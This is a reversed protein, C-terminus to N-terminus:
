EVVSNQQPTYVCSFQHITGVSDFFEKFRLEPANDSRFAKINRSFQTEVLKFIKPIIHLVDSKHKLLYVWTYRSRDDVLTLFYSYGAHTKAHFPGWIDCHILDFIHESVNNLAPFSLRRQKALPCIRCHEHSKNSESFPVVDKLLSLRADSLHGLRQHWTEYSIKCALISPSLVKPVRLMYLSGNLEVKGITRLHLKDQIVCTTGFFNVSYHTNSLLASVSLLNYAFNPVYLVDMLIVDESLRVTGIYEVTFQEKTPLIVTTNTAPHMSVFLSLNYCVHSAAGSDIVWPEDYMTSATALIHTCTGAIHNTSSTGAAEMKPFTMHTQLMSMLHSYQDTNLSAFFASQDTKSGQDAKPGQDVHKGKSSNPLSNRYGPPFGHLLYCRDIVHGKVGCHTCLPRQGDKRKYRDVSPRRTSNTAAALLSLSATSQVLTGLTRQHEEQVILSFVQDISPLPTMILIQARIQAFSENLGMLFTMVFEEDLHDILIKLGQCTCKDLPRFEVLDQWITTM